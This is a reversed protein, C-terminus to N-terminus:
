VLPNFLSGCSLKSSDGYLKTAIDGIIISCDFLTKTVASNTESNDSALRSTMRYKAESRARLHGRFQDEERFRVLFGRM